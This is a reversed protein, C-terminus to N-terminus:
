FHIADDDIIIRLLASCLLDSSGITADHPTLWEIL